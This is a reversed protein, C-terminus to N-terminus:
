SELILIREVMDLYRNLCVSYLPSLTIGRGDAVVTLKDTKDALSRLRDVKELTGEPVSWDSPMISTELGLLKAADELGPRPYTLLSMDSEPQRALKKATISLM